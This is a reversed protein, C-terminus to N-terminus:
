RRASVFPVQDTMGDGNADHCPTTGAMWTKLTEFTGCIGHIGAFPAPMVPPAHLLAGRELGSLLPGTGAIWTKQIGLTGDIEHIGTFIGLDLGPIPM